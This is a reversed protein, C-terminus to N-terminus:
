IHILSLDYAKKNEKKMKELSEKRVIEGQKQQKVYEDFSIIKEPEFKEDAGWYSDRICM